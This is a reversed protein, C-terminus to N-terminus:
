AAYRRPACASGCALCYRIEMEEGSRGSAARWDTRSRVRRSRWSSKPAPNTNLRLSRATIGAAPCCATSKACRSPTPDQDPGTQRHLAQGGPNSAKRCWPPTLRERLEVPGPPPQPSSTMAGTRYSPSLVEREKSRHVEMAEALTMASTDRPDGTHFSGNCPMTSRRRGRHPRLPATQRKRRRGEPTSQRAPLRPSSSQKKGYFSFKRNAIKPLHLM